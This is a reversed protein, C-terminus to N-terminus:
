HASRLRALRHRTQQQLHREFEDCQQPTLLTKIESHLQATSRQLSARLEDAAASRLTPRDYGQRDNEEDLVQLEQRTARTTAEHRKLRTRAEAIKDPPLQLLRLARMLEPYAQEVKRQEQAVATSILGGIVTIGVLILRQGQTM